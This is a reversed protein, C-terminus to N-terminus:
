RRRTTSSSSSAYRAAAGSTETAIARSPARAMPLVDVRRDAQARQQAAISGGDRTRAREPEGVVGFLDEPRAKRSDALERQPKAARLEVPVDLADDVLVERLESVL